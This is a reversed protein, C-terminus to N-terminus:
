VCDAASRHAHLRGSIYAASGKFASAVSKSYNEEMYGIITRGATSRSRMKALEETSQPKDKVAPQVPANNQPTEPQQVPAAPAEAAPVGRHRTIPRRLGGRELAEIRRLLAAPSTDM